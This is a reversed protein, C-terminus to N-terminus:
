TIGCGTDTAVIHNQLIELVLAQVPLEDSSSGASSKESSFFRLSSSRTITKAAKQGEFGQLVLM